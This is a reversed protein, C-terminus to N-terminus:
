EILAEVVAHREDTWEIPQRNAGTAIQYSVTESQMATAVWSELETKRAPPYLVAYVTSTGHSNESSPVGPNATISVIHWGAKAAANVLVPMLDFYRNSIHIVLFGNELKGVYESIANTTLLHAPISDGSFADVLVLDFRGPDNRLGLRGDQLRVEASGPCDSLFTFKERAIKESLPNIEWFVIKDQPRVYAAATGAGLGIAGIRLSRADAQLGELVIGLGSGRTYYSTPQRPDAKMQIGHLTTDSSVSTVFLTDAITMTGYYNRVHTVRMGQAYETKNRQYILWVPPILLSVAVALRPIWDLRTLIRSFGVIWLALSVALFEYGRDLVAPFVVTACLGAAAGATAMVLYFLPFRKAPRARYLLAHGGLCAFCVAALLWALPWPSLQVDSFGKTSAYGFIAGGLAVFCLATLWAPWLCTFTFTFSLLYVGLPLVWAFPNSGLEGSLLRIAALMITCTCFSLLAWGGITRLPIKEDSDEAVAPDVPRQTAAAKKSYLWALVAAVIGLAGLLLKLALIQTSLTVHPEIWFPYAILAAASGINSVGYLYYPIVGEDQAVWGQILIGISTTLILMPGLSLILGLLIAPIESLGAFHFPPIKTLLPALLALAIVIRSTRATPKRLLWFAFGYGLLLACQFFLSTTMWTGASGGYRPTLIKGLVPQAIFTLFAATPIALFILLKTLVKMSFATTPLLSRQAAHSPSRTERDSDIHAFRLCFFPRIFRGKDFSYDAPQATVSQLRKAAVLAM